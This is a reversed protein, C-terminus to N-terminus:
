PNQLVVVVVERIEYLNDTTKQVTERVFHRQLTLPNFDVIEYGDITKLQSLTAQLRTAIRFIGVV